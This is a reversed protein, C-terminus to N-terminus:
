RLWRLVGLLNSYDDTWVGLGPRTAIPKWAPDTAVAGLHEPRRALVAWQSPHKGPEKEIKSDWQYRGVLQRDAALNGLVPELNLYNNSVHVVLVGDEALKRFYLDLAERTILHVPISDSSFADLVIVQYKRDEVAELSLRADGLVVECRPPSLAPEALAALGSGSVARTWGAGPEGSSSLGLVAVAAALRDKRGPPFSDSLFTFYRYAVEVDAPNIEYFVMHECPGSYCALAGAGLGVVAVDM